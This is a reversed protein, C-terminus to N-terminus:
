KGICFRSFINGLLDDATTEGTVEGLHYLARRIDIALLDGTLQTILGNHVDTLAEDVKQLVQHHRINTILTKNGGGMQGKIFDSLKFKLQDVHLGNKAAISLSTMNSNIVPAVFDPVQDIKNFVVIFKQDNEDIKDKM